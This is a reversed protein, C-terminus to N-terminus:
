FSLLHFNIDTEIGEDPRNTQLEYQPSSIFQKYLRLGKMLDTPKYRSVKGLNLSKKNKIFRLTLKFCNFLLYLSECVGLNRDFNLALSEVVFSLSIKLSNEIMKKIIKVYFLFIKLPRLTELLLGTIKWKMFESTTKM